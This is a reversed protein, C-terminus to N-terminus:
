KSREAIMADAVEYALRAFYEPVPTDDSIRRAGTGRSIVEGISQGAFWDRLSMGMSVGNRMGNETFCEGPFAAGGDNKKENM